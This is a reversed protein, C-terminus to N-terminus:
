MSTGFNGKLIYARYLDGLKAPVLCNVFWAVFVTETAARLGVHTGARGLIFSWRFGRLPFTAYYAVVAVLLLGVGFVISGISRPDRLRRGLSVQREPAREDPQDDTSTPDTRM